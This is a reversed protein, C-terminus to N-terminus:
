SIKGTHFRDFERAVALGHLDGAAVGDREAGRWQTWNGWAFMPTLAIALSVGLTAATRTSKM